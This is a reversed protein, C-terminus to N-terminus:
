MDLNASIFRKIRIQIFYINFYLHSFTRQIFLCICFSLFPNFCIFAILAVRTRSLDKIERTQWHAHFITSQTSSLFIFFQDLQLIKFFIDWFGISFSQFNFTDRYWYSRKMILFRFNTYFWSYFFALFLPM